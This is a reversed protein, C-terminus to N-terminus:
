VLILGCGSSTVTFALVRKRFVVVVYNSKITSHQIPTFSQVKHREFDELHYLNTSFQANQMKQMRIKQLVILDKHM